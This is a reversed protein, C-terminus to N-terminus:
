VRRSSSDSRACYRVAAWLFEFNGVLYRRWLRKPEAAFRFLWEFGSGQVWKPAESLTGAVFDFAAGVNLTTVGLMPALATGVVDQKPTGLGVWLLDAGSGLVQAACDAIYADTVPVYPPSYEGVIQVGPYRDELATRLRSLADVSGGLLFHKVGTNVGAKMVDSFLSPGRVREAKPQQRCGVNMFWAVPAGDPFNIGQTALLRKYSADKDALAVTWANALRVNVPIHEKAADNVVWALANRYSTVQFPVGGVSAVSFPTSVVRISGYVASAHPGM